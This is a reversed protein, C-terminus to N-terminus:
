QSAVEPSEELTQQSEVEISATEAAAPIPAENVVIEEEKMGGRPGSSAQTGAGAAAAPRKGGTAKKKGKQEEPPSTVYKRSPPSVSSTFQPPARLPAELNDTQLDEKRGFMSYSPGTPQKEMEEARTRTGRRSSNRSSGQSAAASERRAHEEKFHRLIDSEEFCATPDSSFSPLSADSLSPSLVSQTPAVFDSGTSAEFPAPFQQTDPENAPEFQAPAASYDPNYGADTAPMSQPLSKASPAKSLARTAVKSAAPTANQSGTAPTIAPKSALRSQSSSRSPVATSPRSAIAPRVTEEEKQEPQHSALPRGSPPAATSPASSSVPDRSEHQPQAQPESQRSPPGADPAKPLSKASSSASLDNRPAAAPTNNGSGSRQHSSPVRSAPQPLKAASSSSSLPRSPLKSASSASSLPQSPPNSSPGPLKSASPSASLSQPTAAASPKASPKASMNSTLPKSEVSGVSSAAPKAENQPSAGALSAKSSRQSSPASYRPRSASQAPEFPNPAAQEKEEWAPAPAPRAPQKRRLDSSQVSLPSVTETDGQHEDQEEEQEQEEEDRDEEEKSRGQKEHQRGGASYRSHNRGSGAHINVHVGGYHAGAAPAASTAAAAPLTQGYAQGTLLRWRRDAEEQQQKRFLDRELAAEWELEEDNASLDWEGAKATRKAGAPKRIAKLRKTPSSAELNITPAAYANASSHEATWTAAAPVYGSRSGLRGSHFLGYPHSSVAPSLNENALWQTAQHETAARASHGPGFPDTLMPGAPEGRYFPVSSRHAPYLAELRARESAGLSFAFDAADRLQYNVPSPSARVRERDREARTQASVFLPSAGTQRQPSRSASPSRRGSLARSRSGGFPSLVINRQSDLPIEFPNTTTSGSGYQGSSELKRKPAPSASRQQQQADDQQEDESEDESSTEAGMAGARRPFRVPEPQFRYRGDNVTSALPYSKIGTTKPAILPKHLTNWAQWKEFETFQNYPNTEQSIPSTASLSSSFPNPVESSQAAPPPPSFRSTATAFMPSFGTSVAKASERAARREQKAKQEGAKQAATSEGQLAQFRQAQAEQEASSFPNLSALQATAAQVEPASSETPHQEVTAAFTPPLESPKPYPAAFNEPAAPPFVPAPPPSTILRMRYSQRVDAKPAPQLAVRAAPQSPGRAAENVFAVSGFTGSPGGAQVRSFPAPTSDVPNFGFYASAFSPATAFGTNGDFPNGPGTLANAFRAREAAALADEAEQQALLKTRPRPPIRKKGADEPHAAIHEERAWEAERRRLARVRMKAREEEAHRGFLKKRRSGPYFEEPMTYPWGVTDADLSGYMASYYGKRLLPPLHAFPDYKALRSFNWPRDTSFVFAPYSNFRAAAGAASSPPLMMAPNSLTGFPVDPENWRPILTYATNINVGSRQADSVTTHGTKRTAAAALKASATQYSKKGGKVGASTATSGSAALAAALAPPNQDVPQGPVVPPLVSPGSWEVFRYRIRSRQSYAQGHSLLKAAYEAQPIQDPFSADQINSSQDADFVVIGQMTSLNRKYTGLTGKRGIPHLNGNAGWSHPCLNYGSKYPKLEVFKQGFKDAYNFRGFQATYIGSHLDSGSTIVNIDAAAMANKEREVRTRARKAVQWDSEPPAHRIGTKADMDEGRMASRERAVNAHHIKWAEHPTPNFTSWFPTSGPVTAQQSYPAFPAPGFPAGAHFSVPGWTSAYMKNEVKPIFRYSSPRLKGTANVDEWVMREREVNRRAAKEPGTLDAWLGRGARAREALVAAKRARQAPDYPNFIEGYARSRVNWDEGALSAREFAKDAKFRPIASAAAAASPPADAGSPPNSTVLVTGDALETRYVPSSRAAASIPTPKGAKQEQLRAWITYIVYEATGRANRGDEMAMGERNYQLKSWNSLQNYSKGQPGSSLPLFQVSGSLVDSPSPSASIDGKNPASDDPFFHFGPGFRADSPLPNFAVKTRQAPVPQASAAPAAAYPASFGLTEAQERKWRAIFAAKAAALREKESADPDNARATLEAERDESPIDTDSAPARWTPPAYAGKSSRYHAGQRPHFFHADSFGLEEVKAVRSPVATGAAAAASAEGASPYKREHERVTQVYFPDDDDDDDLEMKPSRQPNRAHTSGAAAAATRTPRVLTAEPSSEYAAADHVPFPSVATATAAWEGTGFHGATASHSQQQHTM